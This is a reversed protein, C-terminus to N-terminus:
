SFNCQLEIRTVQGDLLKQVEKKLVAYYRNKIASPSGIGSLKFIETSDFKIVSINMALIALLIRHEKETTWIMNLNRLARTLLLYEPPTSPSTYRHTFILLCDLPLSTLTKIPRSPISYVLM